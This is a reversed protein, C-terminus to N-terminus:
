AWATAAWHSGFAAISQDGRPSWSGATSSATTCTIVNRTSFSSAASTTGARNRPWTWGWKRSIWCTSATVTASSARWMSTKVRRALSPRRRAPAQRGDAAPRRQLRQEVLGVEGRRREQQRHHALAREHRQEAEELAVGGVRQGTADGVEGALVLGAVHREREAVELAVGLDLGVKAGAQGPGDFAAVGRQPGGGPEVVLDEVGQHQQGGAGDRGVATAAPQCATCSSWRSMSSPRRARRARRPNVGPSVSSSEASCVRLKM